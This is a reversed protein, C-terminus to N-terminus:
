CLYRSFKYDANWELHEGLLEFTRTKEGKPGRDLETVQDGSITYTTTVTAGAQPGGVRRGFWAGPLVELEDIVDRYSQRVKQGPIVWCRVETAGAGNKFEYGAAMATMIREMSTPLTARQLTYPVTPDSRVVAVAYAGGFSPVAELKVERLGSKSLVINGAPDIFLLEVPKASTSRLTFTHREGPATVVAFVDSRGPAGAAGRVPAGMPLARFGGITQPAPQAVAAASLTVMALLVRRM